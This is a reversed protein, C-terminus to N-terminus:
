GCYNMCWYEFRTIKLRINNMDLSYDSSDVFTDELRRVEKEGFDEYLGKKKAKDILIQKEKAIVKDVIKINM